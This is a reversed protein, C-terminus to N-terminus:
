KVGVGKIQPSVPFFTSGWIKMRYADLQVNSFGAKHIFSATDRNTHCGEFLWCWPGHLLNQLHLLRSNSQARVHELFVFKGEPRLIRKIEKLCQDPDQVTCLVLTSIVMSVSHDPLPIQEAMAPIIELEIGYKAAEKKLFPHMPINPEIAIVKTGKPYYRMNAGAGAGIEVLSEPVEQLLEKKYRGFLHHMSENILSLGWANFKGRLKNTHYTYNM